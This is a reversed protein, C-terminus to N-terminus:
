FPLPNVKGRPLIEVIQNGAWKTHYEIGDVVETEQKHPVAFTLTAKWGPHIDTMKMYADSWSVVQPKGDVM